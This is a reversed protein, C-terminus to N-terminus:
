KDRKGIRFPIIKSIIQFIQQKQLVTELILFNMNIFEYGKHKQFM